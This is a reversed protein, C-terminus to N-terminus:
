STVARGALVTTTRRGVAPLDVAFVGFFPDTTLLPWAAPRRAATECDYCDGVSGMSATIEAARLARELDHSSYEGGHDSHHIVGAVDGGASTRRAVAMAVADVVLQTKRNSSM